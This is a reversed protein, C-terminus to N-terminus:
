NLDFSGKPFHSMFQNNIKTYTTGFEPGFWKFALERAHSHNKCHIVGVCDKDLDIGNHHHKHDQGFTIFIIEM